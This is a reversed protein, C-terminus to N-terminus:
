IETLDVLKKKSHAHEIIYITISHSIAFEM